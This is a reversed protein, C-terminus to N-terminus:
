WSGSTTNRGALAANAHVRRFLRDLLLFRLGFMVVYVGLFTGAVLLVRLGASIDAGVLARHTAGTALAALLLTAGVILAYPLLEGRLSPRGRHGWTWRRNLWYNPIAGALWALVSTWGPSVGLVGYVLLFTAESCGAAIISGGTYRMAKPLWGRDDQPSQGRSLLPM